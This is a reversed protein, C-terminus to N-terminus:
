ARALIEAERKLDFILQPNRLATCQRPWTSLPIEFDAAIYKQDYMARRQAKHFSKALKKDFLLLGYTGKADLKFAFSILSFRTYNSERIHKDMFRSLVYSLDVAHFPSVSPIFFPVAFEAGSIHYPILSASTM